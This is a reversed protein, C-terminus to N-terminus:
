NGKNLLNLTKLFNGMGTQRSYSGDRKLYAKYNAVAQDWTAEKGIKKTALDKKHFLWRIATCIAISTDKVDEATVTIYHNRIEGKENLLVKRTEDTIQLPGRAYNNKSVKQPTVTLDFSSESAFLAKIINPDLPTSPKFIDNWFKTWIAIQEDFDNANKPQALKGLTPLPKFDKKANKSILKIENPYLEDKNTPNRRCHARVSTSGRPNKDTVDVLRLHEHVFHYGLPCVRWPHSSPATELFIKEFEKELKPLELNAVEWVISDDVSFYEYILRNRMGIIQLWPINPFKQKTEDSILKAAEGIVELERIVASKHLSSKMFHSESLGKLHEAVLKIREQIQRVYVDDRKKM